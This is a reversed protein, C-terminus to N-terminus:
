KNLHSGIKRGMIKSLINLILKQMSIPFKSVFFFFCKKINQSFFNEKKPIWSSDFLLSPNDLLTTDIPIYSLLDNRVFIMNGTHCVLSYGKFRAVELAESFSAGYGHTTHRFKIGPPFESNIELIVIKASFYETTEWVELDFSDIDISLVDLERPAGFRSLISELSSASEREHSVFECIPTISPYNEVTLMLDNFRQENGEIYWANWKRSEVLYFTNSLHKGDWSGFEVVNGMCFPGLFQLIKKIVGDEGNQSYNDSRYEHLNLLEM